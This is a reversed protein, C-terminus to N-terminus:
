RISAGTIVGDVVTYSGAFHRHSGDRQVADLTVEVTNGHVGTVTLTDAATDAFGASFAALSPSLNRGGLAWARAYDHANIAAYYDRVVQAPDAATVTATTTATATPATTVTSGAPASPTTPVAPTTAPGGTVTWQGTQAALGSELTFQVKAPTSGVPLDFSIVGLASEGRAIRLPTAFPPGATTPAITANFSQGQSDILTAGNSPADAYDATGTNQLRFQVAVLRHGPSPAVVESTPRAPDVVQTATVTMREGADFGTLELSDGIVARQSSSRAASSGAAPTSTAPTSTVPATTVQPSGCGVLLGLALAACAVAARARHAARM